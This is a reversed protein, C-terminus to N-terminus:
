MVDEVLMTILTLVFTQMGAQKAQVAWCRAISLWCSDRLASRVHSDIKVSTEEADKM